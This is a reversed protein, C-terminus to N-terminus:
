RLCHRGGRRAPAVAAARLAGPRPLVARTWTYAVAGNGSPPIYAGQITNGDVGTGADTIHATLTVTGSPVVTTPSATLSVVVPPDYDNAANPKVGAGWVSGSTTLMGFLLMAACMLRLRM